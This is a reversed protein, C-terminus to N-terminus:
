VFYFGANASEEIKQRLKTVLGLRGWFGSLEFGDVFDVSDSVRCRVGAKQIKFVGLYVFLGSRLVRAKQAERELFM